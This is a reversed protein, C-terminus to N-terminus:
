PLSILRESCAPYIRYKGLRQKVGAIEAHDFMLTMTLNDFRDDIEENAVYIVTCTNSLNSVDM